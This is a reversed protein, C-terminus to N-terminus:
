KRSNLISLAFSQIFFMSYLLNTIFSFRFISEQRPLDLATLPKMSSRSIYIFLIKSDFKHAYVKKRCRRLYKFVTVIM